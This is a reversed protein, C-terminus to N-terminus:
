CRNDDNEGKRYQCNFMDVTNEFRESVTCWYVLPCKGGFETVREDKCYLRERNDSMKNKNSYYANECIM